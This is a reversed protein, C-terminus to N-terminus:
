CTEIIFIWNIYKKQLLILVKQNKEIEFLSIYCAYEPSKTDESM